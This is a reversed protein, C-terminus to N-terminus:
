SKSFQLTRLLVSIGVTYEKAIEHAGAKVATHDSAFAIKYEEIIVSLRFFITNGIM